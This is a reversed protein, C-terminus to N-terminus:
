IDGVQSRESVVRVTHLRTSDGPTGGTVEGIADRGESGTREQEQKDVHHVTFVKLRLTV